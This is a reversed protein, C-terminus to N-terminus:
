LGFVAEIKEWVSLSLFLTLFILGGLLSYFRIRARRREREHEIKARRKAKQLAFERKLEFPDLAPDDQPQQPAPAGIFPSEEM